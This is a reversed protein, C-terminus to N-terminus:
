ALIKSLIPRLGPGTLTSKHGISELCLHTSFAYMTKCPTTNRFSPEAEAAKPPHTQFKQPFGTALGQKETHYNQLAM